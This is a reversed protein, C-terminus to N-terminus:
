QHKDTKVSLSLIESFFDEWCLIHNVKEQLDLIDRHMQNMNFAPLVEWNILNTKMDRVHHPSDEGYYYNDLNM